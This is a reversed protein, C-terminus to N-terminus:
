ELMLIRHAKLRLAETLERPTLWRYGPEAFEGQVNADIMKSSYGYRQTKDVRRVTTVHDNILKELRECKACM